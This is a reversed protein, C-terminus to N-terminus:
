AVVASSQALREIGGVLGDLTWPKALFAVSPHARLADDVADLAFGSVLLVPTRHGAQRLQQVLEMGTGGPMMVDSIIVDVADGADIVARASGIDAVSTVHHGLRQLTRETVGRVQPEDDVVLLRYTARRPTSSDIPAAVPSAASALRAAGDGPLASAEAVAPANPPTIPADGPVSTTVPRRLPFWLAASTGVGVASELVLRGGHQEMTRRVIALGLGTGEHPAKTTFFPETARELLEPPMGPGDDRVDLVLWSGDPEHRMFVLLTLRGREGMAERANLVLNLLAQQIADRDLDLVADPIHTPLEFQVGTPLVRRLVDKTEHLLPPLPHPAVVVDDHRSISLLRRTLRAGRDAADDIAALEQNSTAGGLAEVNARVVTLLNNFDHALGSALRGVLDLQQIRQLERQQRAAQTHAAELAVALALLLHIVPPAVLMPVIVAPVFYAPLDAPQGNFIVFFVAVLVVSSGVSFGTLLLM